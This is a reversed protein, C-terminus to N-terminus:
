ICCILLISFPSHLIFNKVNIAIRLPKFTGKSDNNLTLESFYFEYQKHYREKRINQCAKFTIKIFCVDNYFLFNRNFCPLNSYLNVGGTTSDYHIVKNGM